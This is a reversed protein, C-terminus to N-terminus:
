KEVKGGVFYLQGGLRLSVRNVVFYIRTKLQERRTKTTLKTAKRNMGSAKEIALHLTINM